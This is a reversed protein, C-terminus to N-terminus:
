LDIQPLISAATGSISVEDPRIAVIVRRGSNCRGLTFQRNWEEEPVGDETAAIDSVGILAPIDANRARKAPPSM